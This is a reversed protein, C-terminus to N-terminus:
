ETLVLEREILDVMIRTNLEMADIPYLTKVAGHYFTDKFYQAAEAKTGGHRLILAIAEATEVASRRATSLYHQTDEANLLGLHPLMLQDIELQTVRDIADLAMQYGVLYSPFVTGGCYVGLTECSLLLKESALYFGISCRTHGPLAIIQFVMNGAHLLAGDEVPIDVRLQDSLDEYATIGCQAAFKRDLECMTRRATPKAFIKAAYGSAVVKAQPYRDLVYASGLAHDYHSHTLFIYDLPREDLAHRIRDAVIKGTFGFGSDLLIATTGDDILYASDGPHARMDTIKLKM